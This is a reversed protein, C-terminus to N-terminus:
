FQVREDIGNNQSASKLAILTASIHTELALAARVENRHIAAEFIDTHERHVDRHSDELGICLRRYRESHQSLIRLILETWPSAVGSILAKHFRRNCVEWDTRMELSIPQEYTSLCEFSEHVHREWSADGHRVSQRLAEVEIHIRLCTIDELDGLSIPTVRFGCHGKSIVLADSVLRTLAERLTGAGVDYVDKLHEVRLKTDPPYHGEIIHRRLRLYAQEVLTKTSGAEEASISGHGESSIHYTDAPHILDQLPHPLDYPNINNM